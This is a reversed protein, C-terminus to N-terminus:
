PGAKQVNDTTTGPTPAPARVTAKAGPSLRLQGDTVVTEGPEVGSAIVALDRWTREVKVNRVEVTTDPKLVYLYTGTQSNTVAVAPVVTADQDYLRLRVRAFAGPWLAGDQNPFEGKLLLTGSSPDVANDMFTLKGEIWTSEREAPAVEVVLPRDGHKRIGPLDAQTVTFRVRIPKLQNITVLATENARVVDGVHVLVNGSRGSIPARVTANTLDLKATEVAASDAAVTAALAEAAARKQDLETASIVQQEALKESRERDLQASNYNARDRALEANARSVAAQFSRPDIQILVQGTAVDDGERFAIRKVMGGVQAVLQATQISEVTGTADIEFPM